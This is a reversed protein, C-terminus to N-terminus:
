ALIVIFDMRNNHAKRITFVLLFRCTGSASFVLRRKRTLSLKFAL